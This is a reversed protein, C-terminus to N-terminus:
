PKENEHGFPADTLVSGKKKHMEQPKQMEQPEQMEQANKRLSLEQM